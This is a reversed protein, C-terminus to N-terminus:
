KHMQGVEAWSSTPVVYMSFNLANAIAAATQYDTGAFHSKGDSDISEDWFPTFPLATVNLVSGHFSFICALIVEYTSQIISYQIIGILRWGKISILVNYRVKKRTNGWFEGRGGQWTLYFTGQVM